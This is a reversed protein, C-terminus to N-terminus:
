SNSKPLNPSSATKIIDLAKCDDKILSSSINPGGDLHIQIRCGFVSIWRDFLTKAITRSDTSRLPILMPYKSFYDIVGLIYKFGDKSVPPPGALDIGIRQFPFSVISTHLLTVGYDNLKKHACVKCSKVATKIDIKM